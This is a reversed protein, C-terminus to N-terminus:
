GGDAGGDPKSDPKPYLQPVRRKGLWKKTYGRCCARCQWGGNALKRLNKEDLVHGRKCTPPPPKRERTM